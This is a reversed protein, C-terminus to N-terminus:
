FYSLILDLLQVLEARNVPLRRRLRATRVREAELEARAREARVTAQVRRSVVPKQLGRVM